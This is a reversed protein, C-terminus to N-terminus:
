LLPKCSAHMCDAWLVHECGGARLIPNQMQQVCAMALWQAWCCVKKAPKAEKAPQPSPQQPMQQQQASATITLQQRQQQQQQQRPDM